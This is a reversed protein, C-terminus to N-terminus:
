KNDSCTPSSNGDNFFAFLRSKYDPAEDYVAHSYGKYMYLNCGLRDAIEKPKDAGIIDDRESGIVLVPCKISDLSEYADFGICARVGIAFRHLDDDTILKEVAGLATANANYFEESYISSFMDAALGAADGKEALSEWREMVRMTTEGPRSLTSGLVARGILEPRLIAIYQLIMGGQSYGVACANRIGLSDMAEATDGAMDRVSYGEPTQKIRDFLYVTYGEIYPEYNRVITESSLLVSVISMGPIIVLPRSGTGFTLIDMEGSQIKITEIRYETKAAMDTATVASLMLISAIAASKINIM